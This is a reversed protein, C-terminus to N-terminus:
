NVAFSVSNSNGINSTTLYVNRTGVTATPAISVQLTVSTASRVISSAVLTVGSGLGNIGNVTSLNSGAFTLTV